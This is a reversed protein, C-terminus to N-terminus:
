IEFTKGYGLDPNYKNRLSGVEQTLSKKDLLDKWVGQYKNLTQTAQTNGVAADMALSLFQESNLSPFQSTNRNILSHSPSDNLLEPHAKLTEVATQVLKPLRSAEPLNSLAHELAKMFCLGKNYFGLIEQEQTKYHDRREVPVLNQEYHKINQKERNTLLKDAPANNFVPLFDDLIKNKLTVDPGFEKDLHGKQMYKVLMLAQNNEQNKWSEYNGPKSLHEVISWKQQIIDSMYRQISKEDTTIRSRLLIKTYEINEALSAIDKSVEQSSLYVKPQM